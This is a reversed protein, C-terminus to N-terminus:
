GILRMVDKKSSSKAMNCIANVKVHNAKIGRHRVIFGLLLGFPVGFLCKTPNLKWQFEQLNAFTETFDAFLQYEQTTKVVV